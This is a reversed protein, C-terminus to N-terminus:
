VTVAAKRGLTMAYVICALLYTWFAYINNHCQDTYDQIRLMSVYYLPRKIESLSYLAPLSLVDHSCYNM